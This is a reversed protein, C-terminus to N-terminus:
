VRASIIARLSLTPSAPGVPPTLPSHRFISIVSMPRTRSSRLVLALASAIQGRLATVRGIAGAGEFDAFSYRVNNPGYVNAVDTANLTQKNDLKLAKVPQGALYSGVAASNGTGPAGGNLFPAPTYGAPVPGNNTIPDTGWSFLQQASASGAVFLAAAAAVAQLGKLSRGSKVIVQNDGQRM